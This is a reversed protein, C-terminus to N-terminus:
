IIALFCINYPEKMMNVNWQEVNVYAGPLIIRQFMAKAIYKDVQKHEKYGIYSIKFVNTILHKVVVVIKEGLRVYITKEKIQYTNLFEM